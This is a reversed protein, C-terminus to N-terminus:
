QLLSLLKEDAAPEASLRIAEFNELVEPPVSSIAIASTRMAKHVNAQHFHQFALFGATGMIGALAASPALKLWWKFRAKTTRRTEAALDREVAAVVRSTFNSAVPVDPMQLLAESIGSELDWDRQSEPHEALWARLETEEAATLKRKWSTELLRNYIPDNM